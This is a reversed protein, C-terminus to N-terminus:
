KLVLMGTCSLAMELIGAQQTPAKDSLLHKLRALHADDVEKHHLSSLTM